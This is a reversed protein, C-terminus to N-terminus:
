EDEDSEEESEEGDVKNTSNDNSVQKKKDTAPQNSAKAQQLRVTASGAQKYMYVAFVLIGALFTFVFPLPNDTIPALYPTLWKALTQFQSVFRTTSDAPVGDPGKASEPQAPAFEAHAAVEREHKAKFDAAYKDAEAVSHGIYINDFEIGNQMTWIEFAVDTIMAMGKTADDTKFYNTNPIQKPAWVGDYDPNDILDPKWKGKYLPNPILPATWPGCGHAECEPNDILPAKWEGDEEEDWDEPMKAEPDPIKLQADENWDDPKVAKEDKILKPQDEDWDAPKVQNPDPIKAIDNWTEPKKDDPDPITEPPIIPPEFDTASLLNGESKVADDIKIVFSNDAFIELRYLHTFRDNVTAPTKKFQHESWEGTVPSKHKVIFHVKDTAGCKDPGFMISYPTESDLPEDAMDEPVSLAKMYSGGCEMHNHFRVEYQIVVAPSGHPDVSEPLHKIIAHRRAPSKVILGFDGDEHGHWKTDGQSIEWEGQAQETKSVKWNLAQLDTSQFTEHFSPEAIASAALCVAVFLMM